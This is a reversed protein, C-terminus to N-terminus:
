DQPLQETIGLYAPLLQELVELPRLLLMQM